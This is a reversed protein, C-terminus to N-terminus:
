MFKNNNKFWEACREYIGWGPWTLKIKTTGNYSKGCDECTGIPEM